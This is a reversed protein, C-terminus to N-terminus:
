LIDSSYSIFGRTISDMTCLVGVGIVGLLRDRLGAIAAIFGLGTVLAAGLQFSGVIGVGWCIILLILCALGRTRALGRAPKDPELARLTRRSFGSAPAIFATM